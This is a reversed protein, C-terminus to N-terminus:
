PYAHLWTRVLPITYIILRARYQNALYNIQKIMFSYYDSIAVHLYITFYPVLLSSGKFNIIVGYSHIINSM